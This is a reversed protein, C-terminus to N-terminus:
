QDLSKGCTPCMAVAPQPPAPQFSNSAGCRSCGEPPRRARILAGCRDCQWRYALERVLDSRSILGVLHGKGDLVPVRRLRRSVLAARVQDVTATEPVSVVERTMVDGVTAGGRAILDFESLVGLVSNDGDCVMVGSVRHETLLQAADHVSATPPITIVDRTMMDRALVPVPGQDMSEIQDLLQVVEDDDLAIGLSALAGTPASLVWSRLQPERRLRALLEEIEGTQELTTVHPTSM